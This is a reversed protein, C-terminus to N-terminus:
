LYPDFVTCSGNEIQYQTVCCVAEFGVRHNEVGHRWPMSMSKWCKFSQNVTEHRSAVRDKFEQLEEPDFENHTVLLEPEGRYGKDGLIKKGPLIDIMQDMLEKRFTSIDNYKGPPLPGYVWAIKPRLLHVLIEYNVGPAGGLKHSSWITSFPRVEEVPCHTGDISFPWLLPDDVYDELSGIKERFLVHLKYSWHKCIKNITVPSKIGFFCGTDVETDYKWLWRLVILLRIPTKAEKATLRIRDDDIELLDKWIAACTQPTAGYAEKFRDINREKKYSAWRDYGCTELGYALFKDEDVYEDGM